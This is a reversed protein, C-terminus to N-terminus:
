GASQQVAVVEQRPAVSSLFAQSIRVFADPREFPVLHGCKPIVAIEAAPLAHQIEAALGVVTSTPRLWRSPVLGDERGLLVCTPQEIAQFLHDVPADLMSAVSAAVAHGFGDLDRGKYSRRLRYLAEAEPPVAHFGMAMQARLDRSSAAIVRAATASAVLIKAEHESFREFGAPATLVLSRVRDPHDAAAHLAIQAGMSHGMWHAAPADLHDLLRILRGVFFPLTYRYHPKSSAGFGPLDPAIVRYDEALREWVRSWILGSSGLGHLLLLPPGDGLERYAVRFSGLRAHRLEPASPTKM